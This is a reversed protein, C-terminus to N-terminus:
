LGWCKRSAPYLPVPPCSVGKNIQGHHAYVYVCVCVCMCAHVRVWARVCMLMCVRVCMCARMCGHMCVGVCVCMCARVNVRVHVCARVWACVCGRVCAGVCAHVNVHVRVRVCVRVSSNYYLAMGVTTSSSLPWEIKSKDQWKDEEVDKVPDHENDYERRDDLVFVDDALLNVFGVFVCFSM